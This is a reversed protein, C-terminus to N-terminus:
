LFLLFFGKFQKIDGRLPYKKKEAMMYESIITEIEPLASPDINSLYVKEKITDLVVNGFIMGKRVTLDNFMDPTITVFFYGWFVRKTAIMIRKNTLVVVNTYFIDLVSSNKQAPFAYIVKEGPNLHKEIIDCHKKLRFAITLPYKKKFEKVMEYCKGM